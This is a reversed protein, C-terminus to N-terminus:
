NFLDYNRRVEDVGIACAAACRLQHGCFANSAEWHHVARGLSDISRDGKLAQQFSSAPRNHSLVFAQAQNALEPFSAALMFLTMKQSSCPSRPLTRDERPSDSPMHPSQRLSCSFSLESSASPLQLCHPCGNLEGCLPRRCRTIKGLSALNPTRHRFASTEVAQVEVELGGRLEAIWFVTVWQDTLSIPIKRWSVNVKRAAARM